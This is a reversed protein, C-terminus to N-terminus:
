LHSFRKNKVTLYYLPFLSLPSLDDFMSTITDEGYKFPFIREM